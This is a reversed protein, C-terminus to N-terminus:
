LQCWVSDDGVEDPLSNSQYSLGIAVELCRTASILFNSASTSDSRLFALLIRSMLRTASVSVSVVVVLPELQELSTLSAATCERLRINESIKSDPMINAELDVDDDEEDVEIADNCFYIM